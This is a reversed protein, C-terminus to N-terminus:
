TLYLCKSDAELESDTNVSDPSVVASEELIIIDNENNEVRNTEFVDPLVGVKDVDEVDEVDEELITVEPPEDAATNQM